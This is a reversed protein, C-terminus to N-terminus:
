EAQITVNGVATTLNISAGGEGITGARCDPENTTYEVFPFGAVSITGVATSAVFTASVNSPLRLLINGNVTQLIVTDGTALTDMECDIAGNVCGGFINGELDSVTLNGNTTHLQSGAIMNTITIVGNVTTLDIFISGSSMIDFDTSYKRYGGGPMEAILYARNDAISDTVVISDICAEADAQDYGTCRKTIEAIITDGLIAHCNIMGNVTTAEMEDIGQISWSRTEVDELTFGDMGNDDSDCGMFLIITLLLLVFVRYM